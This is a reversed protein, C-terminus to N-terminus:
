RAVGRLAAGAPVSIRPNLMSDGRRSNEDTETGILHLPLPLRTRLLEVTEVPHELEGCLYIGEITEERYNLSYRYFTILREIEQALNDCLETLPDSSKSHVDLPVNRTMSLQGNRYICLETASDSIDVAMYTGDEMRTGLQEIIRFLAFAKLDVSAPKLGADLVLHIYQNMVSRSAAALVIDCQPPGDESPDPATKNEIRIFDYHPDDFPLRVNNGIEFELVKRLKKPPLDPMKLFRVMIVTSPVILHVRNNRAKLRKVVKRLLDVVVNPQVIKGEVIALKPLKEIAHTKIKVAGQKGKAIKVIKLAHDSIELGLASRAPWLRM